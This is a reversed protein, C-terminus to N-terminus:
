NLNVKAPLRIGPAEEKVVGGECAVLKVVSQPTLNYKQGAEALSGGVVKSIWDELAEKKGSFWAAALIQVMAEEDIEMVFETGITRQCKSSIEKVIKNALGDFDFPKFHIKKYVQSFFEELWCESSESQSVRRSGWVPTMTMEWMWPSVRIVRCHQDAKKITTVRVGTDNSKNADDSVSGVLIQMQWNKAGLIREEPFKMDKNECIVNTNGKTIASTTILVMNNISIERGCSDLIVRELLWTWVISSGMILRTLTKLSFLPIPNRKFCNKNKWNQGAWSLLGIIGKCNIARSSRNRHRLQSAAQSVSNIAEDQWGVKEALAKRISKYDGLDFQEGPTPGSCSLSQAFQYSTTESNSDFKASVSGSFHHLHEEHNLLKTTNSEQRTSEYITGLEIDTTVPPDYSSPTRGSCSSLSQQPHHFWLVGKDTQQALSPVDVHLESHFNINMGELTCSISAATKPLFTKQTHVQRSPSQNPFLSENISLDDRSRQKTDPVRSMYPNIGFKPFTPTHHLRRCIDNWKEQLGLVKATLMSEGGNTKAADEGESTDVAAMSLWSPLNESYQNADSLTSGAKMVADVEQEYKDNCLKCRPISQNRGSLPSKFDSPTPFLGGFPVVSRMLSRGSM